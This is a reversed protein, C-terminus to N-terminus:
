CATCGSTLTSLQWQLVEPHDRLIILHLLLGAYRFGDHTSDKLTDAGEVQGPGIAEWAEQAFRDVFLVAYEAWDLMNKLHVDPTIQSGARDIAAVLAPLAEVVFAKEARKSGVYFQRPEIRSGCIPCCVIALAGRLNLPTESLLTGM